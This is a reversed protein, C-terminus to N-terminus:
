RADHRVLTLLLLLIFLSIFVLFALRPLHANTLSLDSFAFVGTIITIVLTISAWGLLRSKSM